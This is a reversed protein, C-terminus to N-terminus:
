GRCPHQRALYTRLADKTSTHARHAAPVQRMALMIQDEDMAFKAPPCYHKRKGATELAKNEARLEASDAKVQNMLLKIDGSFLALPGKKKLADAKALFASVSMAAAGTAPLVVLALALVCHKVM